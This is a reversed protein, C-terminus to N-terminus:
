FHIGRMMQGDRPKGATLTPKALKEAKAAASDPFMRLHHEHHDAHARRVAHLVEGFIGLRTAVRGAQRHLSCGVMDPAVREAQAAAHQRLDKTPATMPTRVLPMNLHPLHHRTRFESSACAAM